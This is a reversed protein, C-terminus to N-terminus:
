VFKPPNWFQFDFQQQSLDQFYSSIKSSIIKNNESIESNLNPPQITYTLVHAANDHCTDQCSNKTSDHSNETEDLHCCMMKEDDIDNCCTMEEHSIANLDASMGLIPATIFLLSLCFNLIIIVFRM